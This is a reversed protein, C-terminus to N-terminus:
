PLDVIYNLLETIAPVCTLLETFDVIISLNM